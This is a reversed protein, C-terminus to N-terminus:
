WSGGAGEAGCAQAVGLAAQRPFIAKALIEGDLIGVQYLDWMVTCTGEKVAKGNCKSSTKNTFSDSM